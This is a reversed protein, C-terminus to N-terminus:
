SLMFPIVVFLIIVDTKSQEADHKEIANHAAVDGESNNRYLNKMAYIHSNSLLRNVADSENIIWSYLYRWM